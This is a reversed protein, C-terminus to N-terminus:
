HLGSYHGETTGGDSFRDLKARGVERQVASVSPSAPDSLRLRAPSSVPPEQVLLKKFLLPKKM